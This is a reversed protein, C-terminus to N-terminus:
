FGLYRIANTRALMDFSNALHTRALEYLEVERAEQETMFFDTGFLVREELSKGENDSMKFWEALRNRVRKDELGSLTYSIDTYMNLHKAMLKFILDSFNHPDVTHIEKQVSDGENIVEDTGGMHALCIRLKPYKLMVPVYNQPHSFLDCAKDNNGIKSNKIWGKEYYATIREYIEQQTKIFYPDEANLTIMSPKKAILSEIESGVYQSGGRTCHTMVPIGEKEAYAYLEDLRPDFPFFGLAPYIKIGAFYPYVKGSTRSIVGTTFYNKAWVALATGSRKRPDASLFPFFNDPYYRKLQKVEELQTALPKEPIKGQNDMHDMDLTLGVIRASPDYTKAVNFALEFVDKQTRQTGVNLFAIYKAFSSRRKSKSRKLLTNIWWIVQRINRNELIAKVM